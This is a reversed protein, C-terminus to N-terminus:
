DPLTNEVDLLTTKMETKKKKIDKMQRDLLIFREELKQFTHFVPISTLQGRPEQCYDLLWTPM